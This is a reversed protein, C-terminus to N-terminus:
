PRTPARRPLSLVFTSGTDLGGQATLDGGMARALDRSIALGLGTGTQRNPQGRDLQVFPEFITDLKDAPIGVGTDTVRVLMADRTADCEVTIRGGTPTFKVANSLLNLLIQQLREPDVYATFSDDCCRYEYEIKKELLQPAVLAELGGLVKAMSVDSLDFRVRGAEIKAFNLIDNILSLLHHQSRKIREIDARQQDTIPGRIGDLLLDAYGGIANLPTRLEHSMNALFESKARNAGEAEGRARREAEYLRANDMAVAASAAIGSALREARDTFVGPASHGFFLGGMPEGTRSIVPVALYSRVPLHGKPMGHHPPMTGYRPDQTIDDSRVIATGHFTPGFVPTARPHGFGEFAERPAGSLTYLTLTKGAENITNYFFAGFQAGTLSTAADTVTQVVGEVDLESTLISSVRHLTEIISAEERREEEARREEDIDELTGVWERVESAADRVPVGRALYWRYAGEATRLRYEASFKRRAEFAELWARDVRERDDPHVVQLWDKDSLTTPDQGTLEHWGPVSQMTGNADATWVLQATADILARYRAENRESRFTADLLNDNTLALEEAQAQLEERQGLLRDAQEQLKANATALAAEARKRTTIDRLAIVAGTIAGAPGHLGTSAVDVFLQRGDRAVLTMDNRGGGGRGDLLRRIRSHLLDEGWESDSDEASLAFAVDELLRGKAEALPWGTLEEAATNMFTIRGGDDVTLVADAISRLTAALQERHEDLEREARGVRVAGRVTQELREPTLADKTLFDIAGARILRAATQPDSQGTLMVVPAHPGRAALTQLFDLGTQGALNYDLLVCDVSSDGDTPFLLRLATAADAAEIVEAGALGSRAVLRRVIKRDVEDDDVVLLRLVNREAASAAPGPQLTELQSEAM